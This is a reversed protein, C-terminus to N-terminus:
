KLGFSKATDTESVERGNYMFCVLDRKLGRAKCFETLIRDFCDINDGEKLGISKATDTELVERGNYM